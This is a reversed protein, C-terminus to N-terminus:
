VKGEYLSDDDFDMKGFIQWIKAYALGAGDLANLPPAVRIALISSPEGFHSSLLFL